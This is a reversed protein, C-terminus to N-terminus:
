AVLTQYFELRTIRNIMAQQDIKWSPCVNSWASDLANLYKVCAAHERTIDVLIRNTVQAIDAQNYVLAAQSLLEERLTNRDTQALIELPVNNKWLSWRIGQETENKATAKETFIAGNYIVLGTAVVSSAALYPHHKIWSQTRALRTKCCTTTCPKQTVKKVVTKPAKGEEQRVVVTEEHVVVPTPVTVVVDERTRIKNWKGTFFNKAFQKNTFLNKFFEQDVVVVDVKEEEVITDDAKLNVATALLLTLCLLIKQM